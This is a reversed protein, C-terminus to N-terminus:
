CEDFVKEGEERILCFEPTEIVNAYLALAQNINGRSMWDPVICARGLAGAISFLIDGPRLQSRGLAAHTEESIYKVGSVDLGGSETVTEVLLFPVGTSTYSQGNTTPTTGKTIVAALDALTATTWGEPTM